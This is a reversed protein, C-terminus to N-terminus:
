KSELTLTWNALSHSGQKIIEYLLRHQGNVVKGFLEGQPKMVKNCSFSLGWAAIKENFIVFNIGVENDDSVNLGTSFNMTDDMALFFEEFEHTASWHHIM